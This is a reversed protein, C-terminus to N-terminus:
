VRNPYQTIIQNANLKKCVKGFDFVMDFLEKDFNLDASDIILRCSYVEQRKNLVIVKRLNSMSEVQQIFERKIVNIEFENKTGKLIHRDCAKIINKANAILKEM